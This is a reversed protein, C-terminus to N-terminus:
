ESTTSIKEVLFGIKEVEASRVEYLVQMVVACKAHRDVKM